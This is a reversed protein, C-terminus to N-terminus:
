RDVLAVETWKRGWLVLVRRQWWADGHAHRIEQDLTKLLHSLTKTKLDTQMAIVHHSSSITAKARMDLHTMSCRFQAGSIAPDQRVALLM